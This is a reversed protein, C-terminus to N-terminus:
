LRDNEKRRQETIRRLHRSAATVAAWRERAWGRDEVGRLTKVKRDRALAELQSADLSLVLSLACGLDVLADNLGGGRLSQVVAVLFGDAADKMLAFLPISASANEYDARCANVDTSNYGRCVLPRADYVSCRGDVLLPCPTPPSKALEAFDRGKNADAYRRAREKLSTLEEASFTQRAVIVIRIIEPLSALVGPHCCCYWCREKCDLPPHYEEEIIGIAADAARATEEAVAELRIGRRLAAGTLTRGNDHAAFWVDLRTRMAEIQDDDPDM